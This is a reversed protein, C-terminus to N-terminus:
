TCGCQCGTVQAASMEPRSPGTCVHPLGSGALWGRLDHARPPATLSATIRRNHAPASVTLCTACGTYTRAAAADAGNGCTPRTDRGCDCAFHANAAAREVFSMGRSLGSASFSPRCPSVRRDNVLDVVTIARTSWCGARVDRSPDYRLPTHQAVAISPMLADPSHPRSLRQPSYKLYPPRESPQRDLNRSASFIV